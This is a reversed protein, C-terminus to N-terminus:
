PIHGDVALVAAEECLAILRPTALVPVDGTHLAIATDHDQVNLDVHAALGPQLPVWTCYATM